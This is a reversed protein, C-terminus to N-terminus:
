SGAHQSVDGTPIPNQQFRRRESPQHGAPINVQLAQPVARLPSWPCLSLHQQGKQTHSLSRLSHAPRWIVGVSRKQNPPFFIHCLRCSQHRGTRRRGGQQLCFSTSSFSSSPVRCAGIQGRRWWVCPCGTFRLHLFASFPLHFPAWAARRLIQKHIETACSM